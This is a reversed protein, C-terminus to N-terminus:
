KFRGSWKRLKQAAAEYREALEVVRLVGEVPAMSTLVQMISDEAARELDLATEACRQRLAAPGLVVRVDGRSYDKSQTAKRM